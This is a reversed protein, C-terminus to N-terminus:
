GVLAVAADPEAVQFTFSEELYLYVQQGDHHSYGVSLDQGVNLTFDDGRQSLVVAGDLGPTWVVKGGLIKTLHDLLLYGSSETVEIIRTYSEPGVALAYPGEVGSVRLREVARAVVSPYDATDPGLKPQTEPAASIIGDIGAAPWGHFVARNELEAADQAARDLDDFEPDSAGREADDIEDRSITFPVRVEALPRVQRLRTRVGDGHGEEHPGKMDQTRGLNIASHEWGSPGSWDVVRRAALLPVLRERAEDDIQSWAKAPIPAIDRLLHDM